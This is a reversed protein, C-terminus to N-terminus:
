GWIHWSATAVTALMFALLAWQAKLSSRWSNLRTMEEWLEEIEAQAKRFQLVQEPRDGLGLRVEQIETRLGRLDERTVMKDVVQQILITHDRIRAEHDQLQAKTGISGERDIRELKDALRNVVDRIELVVEKTTFGSGGNSGEAAM